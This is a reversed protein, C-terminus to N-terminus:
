VRRPRGLLSASRTPRTLAGMGRGGEKKLHRVQQHLLVRSFQWVSVSAHVVPQMRQPFGWVSVLLSYFKISLFFFFFFHSRPSQQLLRM